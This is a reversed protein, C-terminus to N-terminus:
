RFSTTLTQASVSSSVCPAQILLYLELVPLAPRKTQTPQTGTNTLKLQLRSPSMDIQKWQVEHITGLYLSIEMCLMQLAGIVNGGRDGSYYV